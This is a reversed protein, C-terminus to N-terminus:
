TAAAERRAAREERRPMTSRGPRVGAVGTNAAFLGDLSAVLLLRTRAIAAFEIRGDSMLKRLTTQGVGYVRAADALRLYKPKMEGADTAPPTNPKTATM